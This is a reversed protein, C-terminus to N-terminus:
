STLPGLQETRNKRKTLKSIRWQQQRASIYLKRTASRHWLQTITWWINPLGEELAEREKWRFRPGHGRSTCGCYFITDGNGPELANNGRPAPAFKAWHPLCADKALCLRSPRSGSPRPGFHKPEVAVQRFVPGARASAREGEPLPLRYFTERITRSSASTLTPNPEPDLQGDGDEVATGTPHIPVDLTLSPPKEKCDSRRKKRFLTSNAACADTRRM